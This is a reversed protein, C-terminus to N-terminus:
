KARTKLQELAKVHENHQLTTLSVYCIFEENMTGWAPEPTTLICRSWKKALHLLRSFWTRDTM